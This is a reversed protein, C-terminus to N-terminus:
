VRIQVAAFREKQIPLRQPLPPLLGLGRAFQRPTHHNLAVRSPKTLRQTACISLLQPALAFPLLPLQHRALDRALARSVRVGHRISTKPRHEAAVPRKLGTRPKKKQLTPRLVSRSFDSSTRHQSCERAM